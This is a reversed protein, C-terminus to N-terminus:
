EVAGASEGTKRFILALAWNSAIMQFAVAGGMFARFVSDYAGCQAKIPYIVSFLFLVGFAVLAPKDNLRITADFDQRVSEIMSHQAMTRDVGWFFLTGIFILLLQLWGSKEMISVVTACILLGVALGCLLPILGIYSKELHLFMRPSKFFGVLYFLLNYFATSVLAGVEWYHWFHPWDFSWPLYTVISPGILGFFIVFLFILIWLVFPWQEKLKEWLNQDRRLELPYADELLLRNFRVLDGDQPNRAKSKLTKPTLRIAEFRKEDYIAAGNVVKNLEEIVAAQQKKKTSDSDTLTKQSEESFQEWLFESLPDQPTLKGVLSSLNVLDHASFLGSNIRKIM